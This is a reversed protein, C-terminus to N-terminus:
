SLYNILSFFSSYFHFQKSEVVIWLSYIFRETSILLLGVRVFPFYFCFFFFVNLHAFYKLRLMFRDIKRNFVFYYFLSIFFLFFQSFATSLITSNQSKIVMLRPFSSMVWGDVSFFFLFSTFTTTLVFFFM